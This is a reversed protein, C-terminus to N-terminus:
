RSRAGIRDLLLGIVVLILLPVLRVTAFSIRPTAAMAHSRSLAAWKHDVDQAFAPNLVFEVFDRRSRYRVLTVRSWDQREFDGIGGVSVSPEVMMLPHCARAFLHPAIRSQYEVEAEEASGIAERGDAYRPADRYVNLNVMVFEQGDDTEMFRRLNVSIDSDGREPNGPGTNRAEVIAMYKEAEEPSIPDGSGGYWVLFVAYIGAFLAWRIRSATLAAEQVARQGARVALM